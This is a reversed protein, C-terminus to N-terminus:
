AGIRRSQPRERKKQRIPARSRRVPPPVESRNRRIANKTHAQGQREQAVWLVPFTRGAVERGKGQADGSLIDWWDRRTRKGQSVWDEEVKDILDAVDGYGNQRLWLRAGM